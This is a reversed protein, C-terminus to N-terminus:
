GIQNVHYHREINSSVRGWKSNKVRIQHAEFSEKDIFEEHVDFRNSQAKDQLVQFILCGREKRTNEIHIPLEAQVAKLDESPVIIFGKLIVKPLLKDEIVYLAEPQPM